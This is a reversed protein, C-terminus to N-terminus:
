AAPAHARLGRMLHYFLMAYILLFVVGVIRAYLKPTRLSAVSFGFGFALVIICASATGFGPQAGLELCPYLLLVPLIATWRYLSEVSLGIAQCLFLRTSSVAACLCLVLASIAEGNIFTYKSM